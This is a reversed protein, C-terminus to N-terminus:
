GGFSDDVDRNHATLKAHRTWTEAGSDRKFIYAAGQNQVSSSWSTCTYDGTSSVIVYDGSMAVSAGFYHKEDPGEAQLYAKQTWTEADSDKKFIYAAGAYSM